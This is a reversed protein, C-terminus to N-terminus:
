SLQKKIDRKEEDDIKEKKKTTTTAVKAKVSPVSHAGWRICVRVSGYNRFRAAMTGEVTRPSPTSDCGDRANSGRGVVCSFKSSFVM